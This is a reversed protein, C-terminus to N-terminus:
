NAELIVATGFVIIESAGSMIASTSYRTCIIANAGLSQAQEVMRGMAQQRADQQMQTYAKLEGGVMTKLGAGIDSFMNKSLVISGTVVGLTKTVKANAITETTTVLM